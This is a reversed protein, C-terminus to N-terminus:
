DVAPVAGTTEHHWRGGRLAALFGDAPLTNLVDASTARGRRATAVGYRLAKMGLTSHADTSVVLKVGMRVALRVHAGSLDLRHPTGNVEMAKGSALAAEFVEEMRLPYPDRSGVLRGTPHGIWSLLPHSLARVLRRTQGDEDLGHRQHISGIVVDLQELIEDPFDLSGDALVDVESGRLLRVEPVEEQVRAIEDWQERLRDPTLGRAYHSTQSHDTITLYEFGLHRAAIAMELISHKGDSYVTHCHTMGRIDDETLLAPLEGHHADAFAQDDHRLEPPVPQMGLDAYLAAEDPPDLRRGDSGFLGTEAVELGLREARDCVLELHRRPGTHLLLAPAWGEQPTTVLTVRTGDHLQVTCTSTTQELIREVAPFRTFWELTRKPDNTAALLEIGEVSEEWRRVAGAISARHVAPDEEVHGLIEEAIPLAEALPKSAGHRRQQEIGRLVAEVKKPGFGKLRGLSGNAAAEELAEVTDIGAEVLQAVSRPGLEPVRLLAATGAPYKARLRDLLPIRGETLLSEIKQTIAPGVGPIEGLRRQRALEDLPEALAAIRDAAVRYARVKFASEGDVELLDGLERLARAVDHRDM